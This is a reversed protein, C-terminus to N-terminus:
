RTVGANGRRSAATSGAARRSRLYALPGWPMGLLELRVLRRSSTTLPRASAGDGGETPSSNRHGLRAATQRGMAVAARPTLRALALLHRPDRVVLATLMATFGVGNGQLQRELQTQERRHTHHVVAAPEYGLCGGSWLVDVLAALDEGGRAPTGTGLHLDFGHEALFARRFAMNAGAGFAGIGYVAFRRVERGSADLEAVRGRSGPVPRVQAPSFNREGGFGGYHGEYDLQATTELEEPVVLGTVVVEDPQASFRRGLATLWGADVRVDDDTFAVVEGTAARVGANRAASIGPRPEHVSRVAPHRELLGPLVDDAPRVPRNDVLVVDLGPYDLAELSSLCRELEDARAVISPVVVTISPLANGAAVREEPDVPLSRLADRVQDRRLPLTLDLFGVPRSERWALVWARGYRGAEGRLALAAAVSQEVDECAGHSAGGAPLETSTVLVASTTAVVRTESM